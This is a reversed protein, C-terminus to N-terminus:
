FPVPGHGWGHTYADILVAWAAFLLVGALVLAGTLRRNGRVAFGLAGALSLFGAVAVIRQGRMLLTSGECGHGCVRTYGQWAVATVVTAAVVLGAIFAIVAPQRVSSRASM